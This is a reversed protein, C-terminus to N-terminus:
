KVSGDRQVRADEPWYECWQVNFAKAFTPEITQGAVWKAYDAGNEPQAFYSWREGDWWRYHEGGGFLGDKCRWWGVTPPAGDSWVLENM